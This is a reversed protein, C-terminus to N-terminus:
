MVSCCGGGGSSSAQPGAPAAPAAASAARQPHPGATAESARVEEGGQKASGQGAPSTASVAPLAAAVPQRAPPAAPPLDASLVPSLASNDMHGGAISGSGAGAAPPTESHTAASVVSSRRDDAGSRRALLGHAGAGRYRPAALAALAICASPATRTPPPPTLALQAALRRARTHARARVHLLSVRMTRKAFQTTGILNRVLDRLPAVERGDILAFEAVFFMFHKFCSNLHLEAGLAIIKKFHSHYIHAYVRFLRKLINKVRAHFDPPFPTEPTCHSRAAVAPM